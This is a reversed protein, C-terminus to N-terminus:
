DKRGKIFAMPNYFIKDLLITQQILRWSEIYSLMKRIWDFYLSVMLLFTLIWISLLDFVVTDIKIPGIQKYSAYFHASGNHYAVPRYIPEDGQYIQNNAYHIKFDSFKDRVLTEM